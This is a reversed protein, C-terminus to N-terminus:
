DSGDGVFVTSTQIEKKTAKRKEQVDRVLVGVLFSVFVAGVLVLVFELIGVGTGEESLAASVPMSSAINQPVEPLYATYDRHEKGQSPATYTVVLRPILDPANEAGSYKVYEERGKTVGEDVIIFGANFPDSELDIWEQAIRAMLLTNGFSHIGDESGVMRTAVVREANYDGGEDDWVATPYNTYRWTSDGTKANGGNVGHLVNSGSTKWATTLRHMTSTGVRDGLGDRGATAETAHLRVEACEVLADNPFDDPDIDFAVLGRRIGNKTVGVMFEDKGSSIEAQNQFLTADRSRTIERVLIAGDRTDCLIGGVAELADCRRAFALLIGLSIIPLVATYYDSYIM